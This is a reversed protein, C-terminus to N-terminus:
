GIHAEIKIGHQGVQEQVAQLFEECKSSIEYKFHIEIVATEVEIDPYREMYQKGELFAIYANIKNQLLKLHEFESLNTDEWPLHDALLLRLSKKEPDVGMGDIVNVNDIAM